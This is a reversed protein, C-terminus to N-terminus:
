NDLAGEDIWKRILNQLDGDLAFDSPMRQESPDLGIGSVRQYLVSSGSDCPKILFGGGTTHTSSQSVIGAYAHSRVINKSDVENMLSLFSATGGSQHCGVTCFQTFIPQIDTAFSVTAPKDSTSFGWVRDTALRNGNSDSIETTLAATYGTFPALNGTSSLGPLPIFTASTGGYSVTGNIRVGGRKVTFSTSNLFSPNMVESFTSKIVASTPVCATGNVPSVYSVTPAIVDDDDDYGCGQALATLLLFVVM